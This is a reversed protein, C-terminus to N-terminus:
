MGLLQFSVTDLSGNSHICMVTSTPFDSSAVVRLQSKLVAVDGEDARSIFTAVTDRHIPSRETSNIDRFADFELRTGGTEVYEESRWAITLSGRTTCTFKIIDGPCVPQGAALTSTVM